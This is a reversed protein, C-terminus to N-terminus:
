RHFSRPDQHDAASEGADFAGQPEFALQRGTLRVDRDDGGEAVLEVERQQRLDRGTHEARLAHRDRQPPQQAPGPDDRAARDSHVRLGLDADDALDGVLDHVLVVVVDHEGGAADGAGEVDGSQEVVRAAHLGEGLGGVHAVV